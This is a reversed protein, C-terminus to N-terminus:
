QVHEQLKNSINESQFTKQCVTTQETTGHVQFTITFDV